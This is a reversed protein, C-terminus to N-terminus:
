SAEHSPTQVARALLDNLGASLLRPDVHLGAAMQASVLLQGAATTAFPDEAARLREIGQIVDHNANIELIDGFANGPFGIGSAENMSQFLRNM